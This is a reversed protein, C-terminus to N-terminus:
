ILTNPKFTQKFVSILNQKHDAKQNSSIFKTYATILNQVDISFTVNQFYFLYNNIVNILEADKISKPLSKFIHSLKESIVNQLNYTEVLTALNTLILRNSWHGNMVFQQDLVTDLYSKQRNPLLQVLDNELVFDSSFYHTIELALNYNPHNSDVKFDPRNCLLFIPHKSLSCLATDLDSAPTNLINTVFPKLQELPITRLHNELENLPTKQPRKNTIKTTKAKKNKENRKNVASTNKKTKEKKNKPPTAAFELKYGYNLLLEEKPEIDRLPYIVM